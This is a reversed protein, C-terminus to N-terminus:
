SSGKTDYREERPVYEECLAFNEHLGISWIAEGESAFAMCIFGEMDTHECGGHSYDFKTLKYRRRCNACSEKM